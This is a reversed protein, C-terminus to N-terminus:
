IKDKIILYEAQQDFIRPHCDNSWLNMFSQYEDVSLQQTLWDEIDESNSSASVIVRVKEGARRIVEPVQETNVVQIELM